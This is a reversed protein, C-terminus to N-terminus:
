ENDSLSTEADELRKLVRQVTRKSIGLKAAIAKHTEGALRMCVIERCSEPEDTLIQIWRERAIAMQSPTDRRRAALANEHTEEFRAERRINYKQTEMRRRTEDILKNRAITALYCVFQEPNDARLAGARHRFFTAWVAQVFDASDFKSRMERTLLRRVVRRVHPEYTDVLEAAANDCGGRASALLEDFERTEQRM